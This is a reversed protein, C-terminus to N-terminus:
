QKPKKFADVVDETVTDQLTKKTCEYCFAMVASTAIGAPALPILAGFAWATGLIAL